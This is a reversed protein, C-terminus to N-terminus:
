PTTKRFTRHFEQSIKKDDSIPAGKYVFWSIQNRAMKQKTLPDIFADEELHRGPIFHSITLTGYGSGGVWAAVRFRAVSSYRPTTVRAVNGSAM